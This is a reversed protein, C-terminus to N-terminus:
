SKKVIKDIIGYKKAEDASMFFDRDTDEAIKKMSQGTHKALIENLNDRIRLMEEAQIQIDSAPGFMNGSILPQHILVRAHEWVIRKGKTGACLVVAAMSAAQGMCITSVPSGAYQMADYIALGSSIIGGPSNIYLTIDEHSQGDFFLIKKVISEASEDNIEGWLFIERRKLLKEEIGSGIMMEKFKNALDDNTNKAM